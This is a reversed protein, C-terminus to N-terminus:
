PLINNKNQIFWLIGTIVISLISAGGIALWKVRNQEDKIKQISKRIANPEDPSNCFSCKDLKNNITDVKGRTWEIDKSMSTVYKIISVRFDTQETRLEMVERRLNEIHEYLENDM